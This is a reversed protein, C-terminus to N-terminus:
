DPSLWLTNGSPMDIRSYNSKMAMEIIAQEIEPKEHGTLVAAINDSQFIRDLDAERPIRQRRAQDEPVLYSYTFAFPGTAFEPFIATGDNIVFAPSLALVVPNDDNSKVIRSIERSERALVNVTLYDWSKLNKVLKDRFSFPSYTLFSVFLICVLIGATIGSLTRGDVTSVLNLVLLMFFPFLIFYYQKQSPTPALCGAILFLFVFAILLIDAKLLARSFITSVLSMLVCVAGAVAILQHSPREMIRHWFYDGKGSLDMAREFGIERYYETNFGPYVLNGFITESFNFALFYLAPLNAALGAVAFVVLCKLRASHETHFLILFLFPIVVPAVSLRIGIAMGLTFGSCGLLYTAHPKDRWRLLLIFAILFFLVSSTHNWVHSAAHKFMHSHALLLMVSVPALSRILWHRNRLVHFGHWFVAVCIGFACLATVIRALLIPNDSLFLPAYLYSLNPMHFYAFDRYPHLGFESILFASALFQNEDRDLNGTLSWVLCVVFTYALALGTIGRM